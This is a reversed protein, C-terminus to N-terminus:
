SVNTFCKIHLLLNHHHDWSMVPSSHIGQHKLRAISPGRIGKHIGCYAVVVWRSSQLYKDGERKWVKVEQTLWIEIINYTSANASWLLPYNGPSQKTSLPFLNAINTQSFWVEWALRERPVPLDSIIRVHHSTWCQYIACTEFKNIAM